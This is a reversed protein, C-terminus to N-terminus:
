RESVHVEVGAVALGQKDRVTGTITSTTQALLSPAFLACFFLLCLAFARRSGSVGFLKISYEQMSARQDRM